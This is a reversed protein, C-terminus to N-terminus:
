GRSGDQGSNSSTADSLAPGALLKDCIRRLDALDRGTLRDIVLDRVGALHAPWAAELRALGPGTLTVLAVRADDTSPRRVVLGEKVMSAVIRTMRSPSLATGLALDGMRLTQAPAESLRMLVVYRSLTIDSRRDLDLDFARPLAVMLAALARWAGAEADTLPRPAVTM